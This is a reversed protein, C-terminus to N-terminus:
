KVLHRLSDVIAVFVFDKAQGVENLQEFPILDPHTKKSVDKVDGYIWGDEIKKAMWVTHSSDAPLNPNALRHEVGAIAADRQWQEAEGGIKKVLIM